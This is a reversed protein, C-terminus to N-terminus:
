RERKIKQLTFGCVFSWMTPKSCGKWAGEVTQANAGVAMFLSLLLGCFLNNM